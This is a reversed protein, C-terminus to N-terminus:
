FENHEQFFTSPYRTQGNEEAAMIPTLGDEDAEYPDAGAELLSEPLHKCAWSACCVVLSKKRPYAKRPCDFRGTALLMKRIEQHGYSAAFALPTVGHSSSGGDPKIQEQALLSATVHIHGCVTVADHLAKARTGESLFARAGREGAKGGGLSVSPAWPDLTPDGAEVTPDAGHELLTQVIHEHGKAAAAGLDAGDLVGQANVEARRALLTRVTEEDGKYASAQLATGHSGPKCILIPALMLSYTFSSEAEIRLVPLREYPFGMVWLRRM